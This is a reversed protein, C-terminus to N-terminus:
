SLEKLKLVVFTVDDDQPRGDAWSEGVKVLYDIIEQPTQEAIKPLIEAAKDFGLMENEDNFMEPFGDSMLVICIMRRM